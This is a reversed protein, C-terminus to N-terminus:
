TILTGSMNKCNMGAEFSLRFSLTLYLQSNAHVTQINNSNRLNYAINARVLSSLYSPCLGSQMKYFMILKHKDRRSTRTEWGTETYLLNLSVLRTAGTVIRAAEIQIKELENAEYQTCNDWVLDAYKLPPRIFSFCISQLYKRDLIFIEIKRM